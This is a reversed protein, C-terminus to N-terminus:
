LVSVSPIGSEPLRVGTNTDRVCGCLLERLDNRQEPPTKTSNMVKTTALKDIGATSEIGRTDNRRNGAKKWEALRLGQRIEHLRWSEPGGLLRLHSRWEGTFLTPAQWHWGMGQLVSHVTTAPGDCMKDGNAHCRWVCELEAFTEPRQEAMRRLQRLCQYSVNQSHDVLHGKVFITLVIERCRSRRKTVWLAAVVATRLSSVLGLSFGGAPFSYMAAPGVLCAILSAKTQLPLLAWRIHAQEGAGVATRVGKEAVAVVCGRSCAARSVLLRFCPAHGPSQAPTQGRLWDDHLPRDNESGLAALTRDELLSRDGVAVSLLKGAQKPHFLATFEPM